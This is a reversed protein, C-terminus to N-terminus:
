TILQLTIPQNKDTSCSPQTVDGRLFHFLVARPCDTAHLKKQERLCLVSVRVRAYVTRRDTTFLSFLALTSLGFLARLRVLAPHYADRTLRCRIASICPLFCLWVCLSAFSRWRKLVLDLPWFSWNMHQLYIHFM